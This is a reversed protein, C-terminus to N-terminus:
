FSWVSRNRELDELKQSPRYSISVLRGRYEHTGIPHAKATDFGMRSVELTNCTILVPNTLYVISLLPQHGRISISPAKRTVRSLVPSSPPSLSDWPIFIVFKQCSGKCDIRSTKM